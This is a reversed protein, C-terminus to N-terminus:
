SWHAPRSLDPPLSTRVDGRASGVQPRSLFLVTSLDAGELRAGRLDAGLLDARDLQCGRLDAGVLLAGRLSAGRLDRERLDAGLLDRRSLDAGLGRPTRVALSVAELLRGAEAWLPGLDITAVQDPRGDASDRVRASLSVVATELAPDGARRAAERLHWRLEHLERVVPFVAYMGAATQPAARWDVGAFMVQSVHQGAGFCDYATCGPFGRERLRAHIGCGFDDALNPCPTAAPKDIAFDASAAFSPVVCCLGFCQSCDAALEVEPTSDTAPAASGEPV